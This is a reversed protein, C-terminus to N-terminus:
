IEKIIQKDLEIIKDLLFLLLSHMQKSYKLDDEHSNKEEEDNIINELWKICRFDKEIEKWRDERDM